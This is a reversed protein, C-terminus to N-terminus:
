PKGDAAIRQWAAVAALTAHMQVTHAFHFAEGHVTEDPFETILTVAADRPNETITYAFGHLTEFPIPGAHREYLAMQRANFEALGPVERLAAAVAQLLARAQAGHGAHHRLILFFGKPLMWPEFGRPVYGTLPRTWEHAPYGHLNIHLGAGSLALAEERAAREYLPLPPTRHEIDDGLASYRAAHHMHHPHQAGLERHLAYGDPNELAILAFHAGPQGQLAQAARLAGVVGSTENAHQGASILVPAGSGPQYLGQVTRGQRSTAGLRQVGPRALADLVQAIRGPAIAQRLAHLPQGPADAEAWAAADQAAVDFRQLAIRLRPLAGAALPRVDPVVQGPQLHRDGTPRGSHQQFWELLSFYLDEHLAEHTSVREDGVPLAYELGPTDIRIQLREFYPEQRGWPQTQVSHLALGFLQEYDTAQPADLRDATGPASGVRLWGTPSLQPQGIADTHRRNPAFVRARHLSGDHFTAEVEYHLAALDDASAAALPEFRLAGEPLLGALPYAELLFRRGSAPAASPYRVVAQAIQAIDLAELFHHLLPKYASHLRAQVGARALAEEAARRAAADEFLWGQVHTGAWAPQSFREVWAALTRPVTADILLRDEAPRETPTPSSAM